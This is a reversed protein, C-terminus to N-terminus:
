KPDKSKGSRADWGVAPELLICGLSKPHCPGLHEGHGLIDSVLYHMLIRAICAGPM